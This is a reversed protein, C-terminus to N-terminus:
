SYEDNRRIKPVQFKLEIGGFFYPYTDDEQIAIEINQLARWAHSLLPDFVFRDTIRQVANELQFHGINSEDDDYVGLLINFTAIWPATDNETTSQTHRVIFYPFYQDPDEDDSELKPLQQIYGPAGFVKTGDARKFELDSILSEIEAILDRQLFPVTKATPIFTKIDM